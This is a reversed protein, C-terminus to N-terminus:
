SIIDRTQVPIHTCCIQILFILDLHLDLGEKDVKHMPSSPPPPITPAVGHDLTCATPKQAAKAQHIMICEFPVLLCCLRIYCEQHEYNLIQEERIVYLKFM